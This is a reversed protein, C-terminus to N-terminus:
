IIVMQHSCLTKINLNIMTFTLGWLATKKSKLIQVLISNKKNKLLNLLFENYNLFIM